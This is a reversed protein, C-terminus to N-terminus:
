IAMATFQKTLSALLFQTDPTIPARAELAALGFVKRYEIRGNRVLMAAMGPANKEKWDDLLKNLRATLTQAQVSGCVFAFVVLCAMARRASVLSRREFCVPGRFRTSHLAA